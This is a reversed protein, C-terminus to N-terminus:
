GHHSARARLEGSYQQEYGADKLESREFLAAKGTASGREIEDHRSPAVAPAAGEGHAYFMARKAGAAAPRKHGQKENKADHVNEPDGDEGEQDREFFHKRAGM